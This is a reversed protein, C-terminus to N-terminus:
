NRLIERFLIVVFKLNVFGIILPPRGLYVAVRYLPMNPCFNLRGILLNHSELLVTIELLGMPDGYVVDCVFFFIVHIM